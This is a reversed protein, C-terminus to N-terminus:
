VRSTEARGPYRRLFRALVVLGCALITAGALILAMEWRSGSMLVGSVAILITAAYVHFRAIDFLYAAISVSAALFIAANVLGPLRSGALVLGALLAAAAVPVVWRARRLRRVREANFEVHGARRATRRALLYGVPFMVGAVLHVAAPADAAIAGGIALLWVGLVTDWVGNDVVTRYLTREFRLLSDDM